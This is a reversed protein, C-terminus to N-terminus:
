KLLEIGKELGPLSHAAPELLRLSDLFTNPQWDATSNEIGRDIFRIFDDADGEYLKIEALDFFCWPSDYPPNQDAQTRRM